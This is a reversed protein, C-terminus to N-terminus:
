QLSSAPAVGIRRMQEQRWAETERHQSRLHPVRDGDEWMWDSDFWKVSLNVTDLPCDDAIRLKVTDRLSRGAPITDLRNLESFEFNAQAGLLASHRGFFTRDATSVIYAARNEPSAVFFRTNTIVPIGTDYWTDRHTLMVAFETEAVQRISSQRIPRMPAATPSPASVGGAPVRYQDIVSWQSVPILGNDQRTPSPQVAPTSSSTTQIPAPETAQAPTSEAKNEVPPSVPEAPSPAVSPQSAPVTPSAAQVVQVPAPAPEDRLALSRRIEPVVLWAAVGAVITVILSLLSLWESRSWGARDGGQSYSM